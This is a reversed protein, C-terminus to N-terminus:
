IKYVWGYPDEVRGYRIDNLTTLIRHSLERSEVPPLGFQEDGFGITDIQAITAATGTGFAEQIRGERAAAIVEAVEVPREEVTIGWDRVLTLVSDRTIGNLITDGTPATILKGDILFMVNMTGSEEIYKHEVGDTWVLQHYGQEQAKKAPYLSGAYNGAAKASGTGGPFARAYETEIKVKVSGSYYAGVPCTFIM